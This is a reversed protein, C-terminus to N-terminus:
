AVRGPLPVTGPVNLGQQAPMQGMSMMGHAQLVSEPTVTQGDSNVLEGNQGLTVLNGFLERVLSKQLSPWAAQWFTGWALWADMDAQPDESMLYHELLVEPTVGPV